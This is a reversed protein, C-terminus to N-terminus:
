KGGGKRSNKEKEEYIEFNNKRKLVDKLKLYLDYSEQLSLRDQYFFLTSKMILKYFLSMEKTWNTRPQEPFQEGECLKYFFSMMMIHLSYVDVTPTLNKNIFGELDFITVHKSHLADYLHILSRKLEIKPRAFFSHKSDYFDMSKRKMHRKGYIEIIRKKLVNLVSKSPNRKKQTLYDFVIELNTRTDSDSKYEKTYHDYLSLEFPRIYYGNSLRRILISEQKLNLSLGFDIFRVLYPFHRKEEKKISRIVLNNSKIDMHVFRHKQFLFLANYVNEMSLLLDRFLVNPNKKEITLSHEIFQSIDQGGDKMQLIRLKENWPKGFENAIKCDRFKNDHDEDPEDPICIHSPSIHYQFKPDIDRIEENSKYETKATQIDTLKSIMGHRREKDGKCKLAPRYVCGFSGEGIKKGGKLTKNNDRRRRSLRGRKKMTKQTTM